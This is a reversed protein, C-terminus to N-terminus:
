DRGVMSDLADAILQAVSEDEWAGDEDRTEGCSEFYDVLQAEMARRPSHRFDAVQRGQEDGYVPGSAEAFNAAIEFRDGCVETIYTTM